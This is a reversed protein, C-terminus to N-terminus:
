QFNPHLEVLRLYIKKFVICQKGSGVPVTKGFHLQIDKSMELTVVDKNKQKKKPGSHLPFQCTRLPQWNRGLNYRHKPCVWMIEQKSVPVYFMGARALILERETINGIFKLLHCSQLHNVLDENCNILRESSDSVDRFSGCESTAFSCKCM